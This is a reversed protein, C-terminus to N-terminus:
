LYNSRDTEKLLRVVERVRQAQRRDCVLVANGSDIIILDKIGITVILRDASDECILTGQTDFPVHDGRLVLNGQDDSDLVDFLADWSGVDSWGLNITPIVAVKRAHEMIGYDISQPNILPWVAEIIEQRDERDWHQDIKKLKGSLDPMQRDIEELVTQIKWVFMGSNWVHDGDDLFIKALTRDPKEKFKEVEFVELDQYEGMPGGKQIYGYGTAAFTPTIGLTVLYGEQAVENAASLLQRLHADNRILHDSTLIAMGAEPHRNKLAVAALGVVSATGRPLPEILYNEAPIEPCQPKLVDVQDAVTVILIREPPFLGKLREVAMQFLTGEDTIDLMQKPRQQRSLPWLRTGSGGAMIVAYFPESM